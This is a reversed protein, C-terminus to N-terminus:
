GVRQKNQEIRAGLAELQASTSKKLLAPLLHTEEDGVHNTVAIQLQGMAEILATGEQGRVHEMLANVQSHALNVRKILAPNKLVVEAFPYLAAHEASDHATLADLIQGVWVGDGTTNFQTFLTDVREHDALILDIGNPM